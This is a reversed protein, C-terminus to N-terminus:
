LRLGVDHALLDFIQSLVNSVLDAFEIIGLRMEEGNRLLGLGSLLGVRVRIHEYAVEVIQHAFKVRGERNEFGHSSFCGSRTTTSFNTVSTSLM